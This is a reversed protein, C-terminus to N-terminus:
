RLTKSARYSGTRATIKVSVAHRHRVMAAIATVRLALRVRKTSSGHFSVTKQSLKHGRQTVSVTTLCSRNASATCRLTVILVDGQRQV